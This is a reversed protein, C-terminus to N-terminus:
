MAILWWTERSVDSLWQMEETLSCGHYKQQALTTDSCVVTDDVHHETGRVLPQSRVSLM